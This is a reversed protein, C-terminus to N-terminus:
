GISCISKTVLTFLAWATLENAPNRRVMLRPISHDGNTLQM